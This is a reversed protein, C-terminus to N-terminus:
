KSLMIRRVAIHNDYNVKVFYLGDSFEALSITQQANRTNGLEAQAVIKGLVNFVEISVNRNERLEISVNVNGKTPNPFVGLNLGNALDEIGVTFGVTVSTTASCGNADTVTASYSGPAVGSNNAATAGNSWSYTYPATGGSAIVSATGDTATQSSANISSTTLTVTGQSNSISVSVTGSCGNADTASVNYTGGGLNNFTGTQNSSGSINYTYPTAGGTALLTFSGNPSVCSTNPTNNTTQVSLTNPQNQVNVSLTGTCGNSASVTVIYTGGNLANFTGTQNTSAPISFSYPAPAGSAAVTFSGNFPSSCATNPASNQLNINVTTNQGTVQVSTISTCGSPVDTATISYTGTPLQSFTGTQNTQGATSYSYNGSGGSATVSISGNPNACSNSPTNNTVQIAITPPNNGVAISTTGTCGNADTVNVTYSNSALGTFSGSQNSTGAAAYTYPSAGNAATVAFSGNSGTCSTNPNNTVTNMTVVLPNNNVTASVTGTCGNNDTITVNYTGPALGTLTYPNSPLPLTQGQYTFTYPASGNTVQVTVSGNNPLQCNTNPQVAVNINLTLANNPVVVSLTGTCGNNDTATVIHTGPELGSFAGTTNTTGNFSYSYPSVGGSASVTFGGNYPASCSTNAAVSGQVTVTIAPTTTPVTVNITATCGNSSLAQVAYQGGALGTFIGDQNVINPSVLIYTYPAIAGSAAVTFGGNPTACSTNTTSSGVQAVTINTNSSPVIINITGICGTADRATFTYSGALGGFTASAQFNTGNISYQYPITGGSANLTVSGNPTDCDSNPTINTTTVSINPLNNTITVSTTATCSNNDTVTVTYGGAALGTFTGTQNSSGTIAYTYPSAGASASVTFAGNPTGCSSNPTNNTTNLTITPCGAATTCVQADMWHTLELGWGDFYDVWGNVPPGWLEWGRGPITQGDANTVLAVTDGSAYTFQIGVYFGSGVSVPTAFNVVYPNPFVPLSSIAVTQSSLVTGPAGAAGNNNWVRVQVNGTGKAIGFYLTAQTLDATGYPNSFFEVKAIDGFENHGSVYGDFSTPDSYLSPTHTAPNYNRLTTCTPTGGGQQFQYIPLIIFDADFDDQTGPYFLADNAKLWRNVFTGWVGSNANTRVLSRRLGLGSGNTSNVVMNTDNKNTAAIEVAIAFANTVSVPNTFYYTNLILQTDVASTTYTTTALAAGTPLSDAGVNFLRINYIDSTSVQRKAGFAIQVGTVQVTGSVSFYQGVDTLIVSSNAVALGLANDFPYTITDTVTQAQLGTCFMTIALALCTFIKNM